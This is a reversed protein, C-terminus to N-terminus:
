FSYYLSIFATYEWSDIFKTHKGRNWIYWSSYSIHLILAVSFENNCTLLIYWNREQLNHLKIVYKGLTIGYPPAIWVSFFYIRLVFLSICKLFLVVNKSKFTLNQCKDLLVLGWFQLQKYFLLVISKTQFVEAKLM